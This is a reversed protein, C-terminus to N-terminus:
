LDHQKYTEYQQDLTQLIDLSYTQLLPFFALFDAELQKYNLQLDQVGLHLPVLYKIKAEMGQLVEAVGDISQSKILWNHKLLYAARQRSESDLFKQKEQLIKLFNSVFNSLSTTHYLHWNTSLFHDYFIDVLVGSYHGYQPSLRRKSQKVLEHQDTFSDIYRHLLIGKQIQVPFKEYQKGKIADGMFNGVQVDLDNGSLFIHALYNM